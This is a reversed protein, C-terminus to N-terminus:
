RTILAVVTILLSVASIAVTLNPGVVSSNVKTRNPQVYVVDNQTLYYYPSNIIDKSRLDVYNYTKVGDIERIVLVNSRDGYITLDGALSLAELITIRETISEHPGPKAVEGMVSIKYNVIRLNIIPDKIYKELEKKLVAMAEDKTYGALKVKGVVPLIVFGNRDVLYNQIVQRGYALGPNDDMTSVVPLNFETAVGSVPSSVLIMLLDDTKIRTTFNKASDPQADGTNNEINGQFYIIKKPSACSLVSLAILFLLCIRKIM